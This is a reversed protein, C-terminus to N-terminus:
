KFCPTCDSWCRLAGQWMGSQGLTKTRLVSLVLHHQAGRRVIDRLLNHVLYLRRFCNSVDITALDVDLPLLWLPLVHIDVVVAADARVCWAEDCDGPLLDRVGGGCWFLARPRM